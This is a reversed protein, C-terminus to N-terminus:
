SRRSAREMWLKEQISFPKVARPRTREIRVPERAYAGLASDQPAPRYINVDFQSNDALAGSMSGLLLVAAVAMKTRTLM